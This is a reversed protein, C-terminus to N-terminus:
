AVARQEDLMDQFLATLGDFTAAAAAAARECAQPRGDLQTALLQQFERWRAATAAGAGHFYASGREPTLGLLKKARAAIFQGGLASGELVYLSGLAEPVGDLAPVFADANARSRLGLARLDDQLLQLRRGDQFWSEFPQGHVARAVRPEWGALFSGFGQLVRGYHALGFPAKLGLLREIAEHREATAERLAPLAQPQRPAAHEATHIPFL